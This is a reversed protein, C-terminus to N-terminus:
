DKFMKDLADTAKQKDDDLIARYRKTTNINDHGLINAAIEIGVGSRCVQTATTKRMVHPTVNKDIDVSYKQMIFRVSEVTLRKKWQSVFLADTDSEGFYTKRDLLWAALVKRTHEGFKLYREKNGKEYVHITNEKFDIDEVNIQVLAGVRVGTAIGLTVIATDRNIMKPQAERKIRDFITDIEDQELFVVPKEKKNKPRKTKAMPNSDIYDDMVLFNFFTNLASWRTAQISESNKVEKKGDVRTRLSVIYERIQPVTVNKYFKDDSVGDTVSYMFDSTYEIYHKITGLSKGDGDMYLYFDNFIAPLTSLKENIKQRLKAEHEMKGNM